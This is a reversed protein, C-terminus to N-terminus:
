AGVELTPVYHRIHEPVLEVPLRAIKDLPARKALALLNLRLDRLIPDEDDREEASNASNSNGEDPTVGEKDDEEYKRKRSTGDVQPSHDGNVYSSSGSRLRQDFETIVGASYDLVHSLLDAGEYLMGEEEETSEKDKTESEDITGEFKLRDVRRKKWERGAWVKESGFLESPVRILSKMDIQHTEIHRLCELHKVATPYTHLSLCLQELIASHPLATDSSPIDHSLSPNSALLRITDRLLAHRGSTLPSLINEEVWQALPM